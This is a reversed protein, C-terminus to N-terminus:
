ILYIQYHSKRKKLWYGGCLMVREAEWSMEERKKQTLLVSNQQHDPFDAVHHAVEDYCFTSYQM